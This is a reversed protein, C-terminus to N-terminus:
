ALVHSSSMTSPALFKFTLYSGIVVRHESTRALNPTRLDAAAEIWGGVDTWHDVPLHAHM